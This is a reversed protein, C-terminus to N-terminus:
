QVNAEIPRSRNPRVENFERSRRWESDIRRRYDSRVVKVREGPGRRLVAGEMPSSSWRSTGLLDSLREPTRLVGAFLLPPVLLGSDRARSDREPASAFGTRRDWVDLVVLLEPLADYRVGHTLWLWEGYVVLGTGLLPRLAGDYEAAWARLRGLQGARDMAGAGGRSSIHVSGRELWLSVNAGDLKEEVVVSDTLWPSRSAADLVLDDRDNGSRWLYPIRPYPPPATM